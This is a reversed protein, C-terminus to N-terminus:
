MADTEGVVRRSYLEVLDDLSLPAIVVAGDGDLPMFLGEQVLAHAVEALVEATTDMQAALADADIRLGPALEVTLIAQRLREHV